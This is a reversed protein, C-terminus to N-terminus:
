CARRKSCFKKRPICYNPCPSCVAPPCCIVPPCVPVCVPPCVIVPPCVQVPPRVLVPPSAVPKKPVKYRIKTIKYTRLIVQPGGQGFGAVPAVPPRVVPASAVPRAVPRAVPVVCPQVIVVPCPVPRCVPVCCRHRLGCAEALNASGSVVFLASLGLTIGFVKRNLM